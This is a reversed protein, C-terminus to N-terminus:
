VPISPKNPLDFYAIVALATHKGHRDGAMKLPDASLSGHLALALTTTFFSRVVLMRARNCHFHLYQDGTNSVRDLISFIGYAFGFGWAGLLLRHVIELPVYALVAFSFAFPM